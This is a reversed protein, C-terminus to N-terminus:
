PLFDTWPNPDPDLDACSHSVQSLCLGLPLPRHNPLMGSFSPSLEWRPMRWSKEKLALEVATSDFRQGQACAAESSASRKGAPSSLKNNPRGM